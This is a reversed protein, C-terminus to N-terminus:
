KLGLNDAIEVIKHWNGDHRKIELVDELQVNSFIDMDNIKDDKM